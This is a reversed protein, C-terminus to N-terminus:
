SVEEEEEEKNRSIITGGKDNRNLKLSYGMLYKSRRVEGEVVKMVRQSVHGWYFSWYFVFYILHIWRRLWQMIIPSLLPPTFSPFLFSLSFPFVNSSSSSPTFLSIVFLLAAPFALLDLITVIVPAILLFWVQSLSTGEWEEDRGELVLLLRSRWTSFYSFSSQHSPVVEDFLNMREESEEDEDEGKEERDDDDEEEEEGDKTEWDVELDENEEGVEEMEMGMVEREGVMLGNVGLRQHIHHLTLLRTSVVIFVCGVAWSQLPWIILLPPSSATSSSQSSYDLFPSLFVLEMELGLLYSVVGFWLIYTFIKLFFLSIPSSSRSSSPPQPSQPQPLHHSASESDRVMEAEEEVLTGENVISLGIDEMNEEEDDECLDDEDEDLEELSSSPPYSVMREDEKEDSEDDVDFQSEEEDENVDM